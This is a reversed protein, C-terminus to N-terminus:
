WSAPMRYAQWFITFQWTALQATFLTFIGTNTVRIPAHSWPQPAPISTDPVSTGFMATLTPYPPPVSSGRQAQFQFTCLPPYPLSWSAIQVYNGARMPADNAFHYSGAAILSMVAADVSDFIVQNPPVGMDNADYGPRVFRMRMNGGVPKIFGRSM